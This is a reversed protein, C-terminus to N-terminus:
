SGSARVDEGRWEGGALQNGSGYGGRHRIEARPEDLVRNRKGLQRPWHLPGANPPWQSVDESGVSRNKSASEETHNQLREPRGFRKAPREQTGFAYCGDNKVLQAFLLLRRDISVTVAVSRKESRRRQRIDLVPWNGIQLHKERSQGSSAMILLRAACNAEWLGLRSPGDSEKRQLMSGASNTGGDLSLSLEM